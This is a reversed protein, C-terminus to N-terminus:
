LHSNYLFKPKNFVLFFFFVYILAGNPIFTSSGSKHLLLFCICFSWSHSLLDWYPIFPIDRKTNAVSNLIDSFCLAFINKFRSNRITVCILLSDLSSSLGTKTEAWGGSFIWWFSGKKSIQNGWGELMSCLRGSHCIFFTQWVCKNKNKCFINKQFAARPLSSSHTSTSFYFRLKLTSLSLITTSAITQIIREIM